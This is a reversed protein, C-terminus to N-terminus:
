RPAADARCASPLYRQLEDSACSWTVHKDDGQRPMLQVTGQTRAGADISVTIVGNSGDMRIGSVYRSPHPVAAVLKDVDPPLAGTQEYIRGVANAVTLGEVVAESVKAKVTYTQYAPLAVAALIGIFGILVFVAVVFVIANGTGGQAELRALFQENTKSARRISEIRNRSRRHYLRNGLMGPVIFYSLVYGIMWLPGAAPILASLVLFPILMVYQFLFFYAAAWGYMKRYLLWPWTFLAAPWHWSASDGNSLRGFRELYYDTNNPGIYASWAEFESVEAEAEGAGRRGDVGAKPPAFRDRVDPAPGGGM